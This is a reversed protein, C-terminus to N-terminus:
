RRWSSTSSTQPPQIPRGQSRWCRPRHRRFSTPPGRILRRLGTRWKRRQGLQEAASIEIGDVAAAHRKQELSDITKVLRDYQAIREERSMPAPSWLTAVYLVVFAVVPIVVVAFFFDSPRRIGSLKM